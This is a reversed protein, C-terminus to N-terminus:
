KVKRNSGAMIYAAGLDGGAGILSALLSNDPPQYIVDGQVGYRALDQKMWLNMPDVFYTKYAISAPDILASKLLGAQATANNLYAKQLGFAPLNGFPTQINFNPMGLLLGQVRQGYQNAANVYNDRAEIMRKQFEPDVEYTQINIQQGPPIMGPFTYDKKRLGISPAFVGQYFIQLADDRKLVKDEPSIVKTKGKNGGSLLSGLAAGGAIAAITGLGLM